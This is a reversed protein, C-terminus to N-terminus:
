QAGHRIYNHSYFAIIRDMTRITVELEERTLGVQQTFLAVQQADRALHARHVALGRPTLALLYRRQDDEVRERRVLGKEVLKDVMVSTAGKTRFMQESLDAQSIGESRAIMKLTHAENAHLSVGDYEHPHKQMATIIHDMAYLQEILEAIEDTEEM